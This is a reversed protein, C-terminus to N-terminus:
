HSSKYFELLFYSNEGVGLCHFNVFHSNFLPLKETFKQTLITSFKLKHLQGGNKDVQKHKIKLVILIPLLM